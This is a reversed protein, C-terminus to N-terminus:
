VPATLSKEWWLKCEACGSAACKCEDKRFQDCTQNSDKPGHFECEGSFLGDDRQEGWTFHYCVQCRATNEKAVTHLPLRESESLIHGPGREWNCSVCVPEVLGPWRYDRHDYVSAVEGCDVCRVTGNLPRYSGQSILKHVYAHAKAIRRRRRFQIDIAEPSGPEVFDCWGCSLCSGHETFKGGAYGCKRCVMNKAM